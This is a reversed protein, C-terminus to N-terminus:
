REQVGIKWVIDSVPHVLSWNFTHDTYETLSKCRSCHPFLVTFLLPWDYLPRKLTYWWLLQQLHHFFYLLLFLSFSPLLLPCSSFALSWSGPPHLQVQTSVQVSSLHCLSWSVATRVESTRWYLDLVSATCKLSIDQDSSSSIPKMDKMGGKVQGRGLQSERVLFSLPLVSVLAQLENLTNCTM